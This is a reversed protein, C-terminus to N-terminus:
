YYQRIYGFAKDYLDQDNAPMFLEKLFKISNLLGQEHREKLKRPPGIRTGRKRLPCSRGSLALCALSECSMVTWAPPPLASGPFFYSGLKSGM